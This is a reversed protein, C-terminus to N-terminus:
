GVIDRANRQVELDAFLDNFVVKYGGSNVRKHGLAVMRNEMETWCSDLLWAGLIQRARLQSNTTWNFHDRDIMMTVLNKQEDNDSWPEWELM